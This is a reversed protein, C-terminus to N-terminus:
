TRQSRGPGSPEPSRSVYAGETLLPVSDSVDLEAALEVDRAFGREILEQGSICAHLRDALADGCALFADVAAQAEPSRVGEISTLIAGAGVWDEFAPRLSGDPWREGAPIVAVRRGLRLAAAGVASANRLCGAITATPGTALSLTAGNPSPLVLRSGEPLTTLSAPSLSYGATGRSEALLAGRARAFESASDDRFRYPFVTARRSTAIDVTTSFSLVDVIIVVDRREHLAAIGAEGWECAVDFREQDYRM